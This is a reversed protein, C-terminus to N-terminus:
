NCYLKWLNRWNRSIKKQEYYLTSYWYISRFIPNAGKLKFYINLFM